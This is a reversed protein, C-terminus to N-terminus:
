PKRLAVRYPLDAGVKKTDVLCFLRANKTIFSDNVLGYEKCGTKIKNINNNNNM